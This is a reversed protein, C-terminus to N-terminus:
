PLTHILDSAHLAHDNAAHEAHMNQHYRMPIAAEPEIMSIGLLVM